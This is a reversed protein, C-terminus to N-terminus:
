AGSYLFHARYLSFGWNFNVAAPRPDIGYTHSHTEPSEGPCGTIPGTHRRAGAEKEHAWNKASEIL